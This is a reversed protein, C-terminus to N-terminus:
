RSSVWSSFVFYCGLHSDDSYQQQCTYSPAVGRFPSSKNFRNSHFHILAIVHYRNTSYQFTIHSSLFHVQDSKKHKNAQM